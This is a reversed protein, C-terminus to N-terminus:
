EQPAPAQEQEPHHQVEDLPDDARPGAAVVRLRVRREGPSPPSPGPDSASSRPSSCTSTRPGLATTASPSACPSGDGCRRRPSSRWAAARRCSSSSSATSPTSSSRTWATSGTACACSTAASPALRELAPHGDVLEALRHALATTRDMVAGHADAGHALLAMWVRLARFGRTLDIGYETFWVDGAALGRTAHRLYAPVVSFTARHAAEDRVLVLGVDMPAQMWTHLDLALSDARAMGRVLDRHASLGLFGGIAGDVHLWLGERQALDAAVDLTQDEHVSLLRLSAEGLGLLECSKRHCSHVESSAYVAVPGVGALGETRM